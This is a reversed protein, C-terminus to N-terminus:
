FPKVREDREDGDTPKTGWALYAGGLMLPRVQLNPVMEELHSWPRACGEFTTIYRFSILWVAANVPFAWWPAWKVGTVGVRGGARLHRLVNELSPRSRMVDHTGSFLAADAGDEISAQGVPAEVLRVNRWGNRAIRAKAQALMEPSVDVGIIRGSPGIRGELQPFALGTGCAVDIVSQGPRLELAEVARNRAGRGISAILDYRRAGKRYKERALDSSPGRV